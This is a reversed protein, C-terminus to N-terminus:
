GPALITKIETLPNKDKIGAWILLMGVTLLLLEPITM